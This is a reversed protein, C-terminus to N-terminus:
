RQTLGPFIEMRGEEFVGIGPEILDISKGRTAIKGLITHLLREENQEFAIPDDGCRTQPMPQDRDKAAISAVDAVLDRGVCTAPSETTLQEASHEEFGPGDPEGANQQGGRIGVQGRPADDLGVSAPPLALADRVMRSLSHEVVPDLELGTDRPTREARPVMARRVASKM